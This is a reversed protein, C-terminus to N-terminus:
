RGARQRASSKSRRQSDTYSAHLVSSSHKAHRPAWDRAGHLDSDFLAISLRDTRHQRARARLRLYQRIGHLSRETVSESKRFTQMPHQRRYPSVASPQPADTEMDNLRGPLNIAWSTPWSSPPLAPRKSTQAWRTGCVKLRPNSKADPGSSDANSECPTESRQSAATPTKIYTCLVLQM